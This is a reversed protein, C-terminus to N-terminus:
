EDLADLERAIIRTIEERVADFPADPDVARTALAGNGLFTIFNVLRCRRDPDLTPSLADLARGVADHVRDRVADNIARVRPNRGAEAFVEMMMRCDDASADEEGAWSLWRRIAPRDNRAIASDLEEEDLCVLVDEEVIAAIVGEKSGFDRYIQQVRVGSAAEVQAMGTRHFGRELVLQRAADTVARRRAESREAASERAPAAEVAEKDNM